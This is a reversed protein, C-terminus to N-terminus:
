PTPVLREARADMVHLGIILVLLVLMRGAHFPSGFGSAVHTWIAGVMLACLAATGYVSLKQLLLSLGGVIEYIGVLRAFLPSYGFAEFQEIVGPTLRVRDVGSVTLGVWLVLSLTWLSVFRAKRWVAGYSRKRYGQERGSLSPSM